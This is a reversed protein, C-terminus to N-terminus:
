LSFGDGQEEIINSLFETNEKSMVKLSHMQNGRVVSETIHGLSVNKKFTNDEVKCFGVERGPEWKADITNGKLIVNKCDTDASYSLNGANIENDLVIANHLNTLAVGCIRESDSEYMSIQNKKVYLLGSMKRIVLGFQSGHSTLRNNVFRFNDAEEIYVVMRNEFEEFVCNRIECNVARASVVARHQMSNPQTDLGFTSLRCDYFLVNRVDGLNHGVCGFGGNCHAIKCNKVVVDSVTNGEDPEIDVGCGANRSGLINNIKCDAIRIREGRIISIGQRRCDRVNLLTCTVDNGDICIGDGICKTITINSIEIQSSKIIRIGHGYEHTSNLGRKSMPDRVEPTYTHLDRDGVVEGNGNITVNEADKIDFIAYRPYETGLVSIIGDLIITTNSNLSLLGEYYSTVSLSYNGDEIYVTNKVEPNTLAIVDKLRNVKKEADAFMTSRIEPVNWTGDISIGNFVTGNYVIATNDGVIVGNNLSGGDFSLVCGTPIVVSDGSLDFDKKVVYVVNAESFDAQTLVQQEVITNGSNLVVKKKGKLPNKVKAVNTSSSVVKSKTAPTFGKAYVAEFENLCKDLDEMRMSGIPIKDSAKYKALGCACQTYFIVFSLIFVAAVIITRNAKKM